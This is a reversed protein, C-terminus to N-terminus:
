KEINYLAAHTLDGKWGFNMFIRGDV